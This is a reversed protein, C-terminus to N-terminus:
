GRSCAGQIDDAGQTCAIHTDARAAHGAWALLMCQKSVAHICANSNRRVQERCCLAYGGIRGDAMKLQRVAQRVEMEVPCQWAMRRWWGAGKGVASKM